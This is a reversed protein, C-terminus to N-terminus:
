LQYRFDQHGELVAKGDNARKNQVRFVIHQLVCIGVTIANMALTLHIGETYHPAARETFSVGAAIGGIGGFAVVIASTFARKASGRINIQSYGIVLPVVSNCGGVALCVGFYRPGTGTAYSYVSTGIITCIANFAILPTRVQFRDSIFASGIVPVLAWVYPPAVLLQSLAVDFGMGALIRPLFYSLSYSALTAGFFQVATAWIKLDLSFRMLKSFTMSDQVFDARDREIRTKVIARQEENLFKAKPGPFDVITLAGIVGLVVTIIGEIIFISRWGQNKYMRILGLGYALIASLGSALISLSYFISMRRQVEARPYWSSLLYVAGPFLAAEFIGLLARCAALQQWTEVFGMALMVIGWLITAGGLWKAAGWRRMGLNSPLEFLIYPVFFILVAISYYNTGPINLNLTRGMGAARALSINTRDILSISYLAALIPVLRWDVKRMTRKVEWPDM